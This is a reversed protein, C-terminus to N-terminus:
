DALFRLNQVSFRFAIQVHKVQVIILKRGRLNPHVTVSQVIDFKKTALTVFYSYDFIKNEFFWNSINLNNECKGIEGFPILKISAINQIKYQINKLLLYASNLQKVKFFSIM